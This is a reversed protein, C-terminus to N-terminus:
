RILLVLIHLIVVIKLVMNVQFFIRELLRPPREGTSCTEGQVKGVINEACSM